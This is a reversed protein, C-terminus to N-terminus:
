AARREVQREIHRALALDLNEFIGATVAVNGAWLWAESKTYFNANTYIEYRGPLFSRSQYTHFIGFSGTTGPNQAYLFPVFFLIILVSITYRKM